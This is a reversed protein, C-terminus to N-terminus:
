LYHNERFWRITDQLTETFPRPNFGLESRAKGSSINRHSNQLTHLSVSTYLPEKNRLLAHLNLFPEGVQALWIPLELRPPRHGGLKEIEEAVSKLDRWIGGLLYSNGPKGMEIANIAALCVDRVDVWNYGGPILAPNQGRYFRILAFGMLSPKYDYPGVIATPNLVTVDLDDMSAEMMLRQGWAKSYDYSVKSDLALSTTEDLKELGPIHRFAHISSFHIIKRVKEKRAASVVSLCSDININRCLADNKRISICAALHFLVECGKCLRTLDTESTVDGRVQEVPMDKLGDINRHILAKVHHGADVLMRCLNNGIHGSAGTVAIKM